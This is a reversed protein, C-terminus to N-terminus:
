KNRYMNSVAKIPEISGKFISHHMKINKHVWDPDEKKRVISNRSLLSDIAFEEKINLPLNVIYQGFGSCVIIMDANLLPLVLNYYMTLM